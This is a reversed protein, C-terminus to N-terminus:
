RVHVVDGATVTRICVGVDVLLHGSEDVDLAMGTFSEDALDVRVRQSITALNARYEAGLVAAYGADTQLSGYREAIAELLATAVDDTEIAGGSLRDLSTARASIEAADPDGAPPWGPPWNCNIGIGVVLAPTPHAAAGPTPHAAAGPTAPTPQVAPDGADPAAASPVVAVEALLGAVKRDSAQLDNPWKFSLEVGAVAACADRGALAVLWSLLHWRALDLTPRFLVSCLVSGGEVDVWRRGLRGRGATQSGALVSTGEPAGSRALDALYRNTSDVV